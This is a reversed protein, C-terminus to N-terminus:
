SGGKNNSRASVGVLNKVCVRRGDGHCWQVSCSNGYYCSGGLFVRIQVFTWAPEVQEVEICWVQKLHDDRDTGEYRRDNNVLWMHTNQAHQRTHKLTPGGTRWLQSAAAPVKSHCAQFTVSNIISCQKQSWSARYPNSACPDSTLEADPCSASVKWSNGFTLVDVVKENSRTTFDNKSDGDYNGCLGCVQGQHPLCFLIQNHVQKSDFHIESGQKKWSSIGKNNDREKVMFGKKYYVKTM